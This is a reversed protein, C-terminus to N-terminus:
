VHACEIRQTKYMEPIQRTKPLTIFVSFDPEGQAVRGGASTIMTRALHLPTSMLDLDLGSADHHGLCPYQAHVRVLVNQLDADVAVEVTGGSKTLRPLNALILALAASVRGESATVLDTGYDYPLPCFECAVGAAAYSERLSAVVDRAMDSVSFSSVDQAPQHFHFLKRVLDLCGSIRRSQEMARQIVGRYEEATSSTLLSLELLGQLVTLPQATQHLEHSIASSTASDFGSTMSVSPTPLSM